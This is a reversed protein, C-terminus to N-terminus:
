RRTTPGHRRLPQKYSRPRAQRRSAATSSHIASRSRDAAEAEALERELAQVQEGAAHLRELARAHRDQAKRYDRQRRALLETPNM